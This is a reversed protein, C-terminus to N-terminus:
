FCYGKMAFMWRNKQGISTKNKLHHLQIALVLRPLTVALSHAAPDGGLVDDRLGLVVPDHEPGVGVDVAISEAYVNLFM